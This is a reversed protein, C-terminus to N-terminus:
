WFILSAIGNVPKVRGRKQAQGLGSDPNGNDYTATGKKKHETFLSSQKTKNMNTSNNVM